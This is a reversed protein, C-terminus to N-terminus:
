EGKVWDNPSRKTRGMKRAKRKCADKECAVPMRGARSDYFVAAGCSCQGIKIDAITELRATKGAVDVVGDRAAEGRYYRERRAALRHERAEPSEAYREKKVATGIEYERNLAEAFALVNRGLSM